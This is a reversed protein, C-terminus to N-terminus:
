PPTRALEDAFVGPVFWAAAGLSGALFLQRRSLLDTVNM